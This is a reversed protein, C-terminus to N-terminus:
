DEKYYQKHNKEHPYQKNTDQRPKFHMKQKIQFKSCPLETHQHQMLHIQTTQPDSAVQKIHKGTAKFSEMKKALQHVKSAPFRKLDINSDNMTKSVFEEDRLFFWFIDRHLNKAIEQLYKALAAPTQVANNWEDVSKKVKDLAQLCTLDQESKIPSPNVSNRLHRGYLM